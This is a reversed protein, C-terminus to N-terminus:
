APNGAPQLAPLRMQRLRDKTRRWLSKGPPVVCTAAFCGFAIALWGGGVTAPSGTPILAFNLAALAVVLWRRWCLTRVAEVAGTTVSATGIGREITRTVPWLLLGWIPACGTIMLVDVTSLGPETLGGVLCAGLGIAYAGKALVFNTRGTTQTWKRVVPAALHEIVWKDLGGLSFLTTVAAEEVGQWRLKAGVLQCLLGCGRGCRM